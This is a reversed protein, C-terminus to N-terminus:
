LFHWFLLSVISVQHEPYGFRHDFTCQRDASVVSLWATDSCIYKSCRQYFCDCHHPRNVVANDHFLQCNGSKISLRYSANSSVVVSDFPVTVQFFFDLTRSPWRPFWTTWSLSVALSETGLTDRDLVSHNGDIVMMHIMTRRSWRPKGAWFCYHRDFNPFPGITELCSLFIRFRQRSIMQNPQSSVNKSRQRWLM